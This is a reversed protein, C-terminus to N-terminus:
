KIPTVKFGKAKLLKIVGHKGYLHGAGVAFFTSKNKVIAPIKAAWEENRKKLILNEANEDMFRRDRVKDYLEPLNEAVFLKTMDNFVAAYENKLKMQKLVEQISYAKNMVVLQSELTELSAITKNQAQAMAVFEREYFKMESVPCPLADSISSSLLGFPTIHDAQQLTIGMQSTLIENLEIKETENLQSSLTTESRMMKQMVKMEEPDSMNVELVLNATSNFASSVKEKIKFDPACMMHLTGFLYSPQALGNGEIKWLLSNSKETKQANSLLLTFLAAIFFTAKKM